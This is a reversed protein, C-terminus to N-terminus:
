SDGTLIFMSSCGDIVINGIGVIAIIPHLSVLVLFDILNAWRKKSSSKEIKDHTKKENRVLYLIYSSFFTFAYGAVHVTAVGQGRVCTPILETAYQAASNYAVTVGFRGIISLTVLLEPSKVGSQYVLIIGSAATFIGSLLLSSSAMAKRGITDQLALLVLCGPFIASASLTFMLFPSIGLGEVNRSMADYCLTIVMRLLNSVYFQMKKLDIKEHFILVNSLDDISSSVWSKFFLIFTNRRLRPTKFLDLLSPTSTQESSKSMQNHYHSRFCEITDNDLDRGNFKAVRQYCVIAGEINNRSMMWQASEPLIFYFFPVVAIPLSTYILYSQWSGLYVAIWPTVM